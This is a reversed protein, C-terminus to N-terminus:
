RLTVIDTAGSPYPRALNLLRGHALDSSLASFLSSSPYLRALILEAKSTLILSTQFLCALSFRELKNKAV